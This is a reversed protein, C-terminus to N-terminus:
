VKLFKRSVRGVGAASAVNTACAASDATLVDLTKLYGPTPRSLRAAAREMGSRVVPVVAVQRQKDSHLFMDM